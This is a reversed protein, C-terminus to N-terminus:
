NVSRAPKRQESTAASTAEKKVLVDNLSIVNNVTFCENWLTDAKIAAGQLETPHRSLYDAM